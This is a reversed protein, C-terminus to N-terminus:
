KTLVMKRVQVVNGAVLRCLYIGSSLGTGDFETQYTGPQQMGSALTAVVKGTVDFVRLDVTGAVPLQWSILTKPNFPNPYNQLLQVLEPRVKVDVATTRMVAIPDSLWQSGDLDVQRLRYYGPSTGSFTADTYSYTHMELTTGNGPIFSGPIDAFPGSISAGRQVFFGYNNIESVTTWELKVSNDASITGSFRALQIPLTVNQTSAFNWTGDSGSSSPSAVGVARISFSAGSGPATVKFNYATGPTLSSTHTIEGSLLQLKPDTTSLTAGGTVSIDVGAFSTGSKTVTITYNGTANPALSSPGAIAVTITADASSGGHCACGTTSLGTRSGNSSAYVTVSVAILMVATVCSRHISRM